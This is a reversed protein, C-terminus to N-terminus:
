LSVKSLLNVEEPVRTLMNASLDFKRLWNCLNLLLQVDLACLRLKSWDVIGSEKNVNTSLLLERKVAHQGTRQAVELADTTSVKGSRIARTVHESLCRKTEQELSSSAARVFSPNLPLLTKDGTLAAKMLLLMATASNVIGKKEAFALCEDINKAGLKVLKGVCQPNDSLTAAELCQKMFTEGIEIRTKEYSELVQLLNDEAMKKEIATAVSPAHAHSYGEIESRSRIRVHIKAFSRASNSAFHSSYGTQMYNTCMHMSYILSTYATESSTSFIYM